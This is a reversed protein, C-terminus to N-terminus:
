QADACDAGTINKVLQEIRNLKLAEVPQEIHVMKKVIFRNFFGMRQLNYGYGLEAKIVAHTYLREGLIQKMYMEANEESGCSLFFGFGMRLLKKEYHKVFDLVQRQVKGMYISGGLIVADYHDINVEAHKKLKMCDAEDGIAAKFAEACKEAAGYKSAYLVLAKM